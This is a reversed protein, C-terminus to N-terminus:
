LTTLYQWNSLLLIFQIIQCLPWPSLQDDELKTLVSLLMISVEQQMILLVIVRAILLRSATFSVYLYRCAYMTVHM